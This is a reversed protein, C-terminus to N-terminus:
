KRNLRLSNLVVSVSSFAMAASAWMPNLLVGCIPYLVGAAVPICVINYIFAWFLNEKIVRVTRRSLQIARSIREPDSNIITVMAVDMAIDSGQGMAISIDARALAQSDNIGDGVMAVTHGRQQLRGIFDEKDQPLTNAVVHDIGVAQAVHRAAAESDGTLMYVAIGQQRLHAITTSATAKITDSIAFVAQTENERSYYVVSYGEAEWQAIEIDHPMSKEAFSKKGIRYVTDHFTAQIGEGTIAEIKDPPIPTLVEAEFHRTLAQAIPHESHKEISYLRSILTKKEKETCFWKANIMRPTGCTLTGTKDLVVCDVKCMKELAVADKILIHDRAARGIGVMIAMPTALGLACPCAIVLVTIATLLAYAAGDETLYHNGCIYWIIFTVFALGIITPVFVRSIRDAIRQVPAKSGQAEQVRRVIQALLTDSGVSQAEITLIGGRNVTGALVKDGQRKTAPIPEGTIMSEDIYSEGSVVMGDVAVREGPRVVIRDGVKLTAINVEQEDIDTVKLATQPQLNILGKLASSTHRKAREELFKGTLVFTIIMGAAEYYTHPMVGKSQWYHPFLAFALSSLLATLTSLAVLTDMSSTRQQLQKWAHIYFDRGAYVVIPLTLALLITDIYPLHMSWMSLIMLPIACLWAVILRRRMGIYHRRNAAERQVERDSKSVILGYGAAEVAAQIEDLTILREDYELILSETAFNVVAQKVGTLSRVTSEVNGACVSCSMELVPLVCKIM